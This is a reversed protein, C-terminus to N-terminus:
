IRKSKDKTVFDIEEDKMSLLIEVSQKIYDVIELPNM